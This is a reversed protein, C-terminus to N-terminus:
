RVTGRRDKQGDGRCIGPVRGTAGLSPLVARYPQLHPLGTKGRCRDFSRADTVSGAGNGCDVVVSLGPDISVADLIAKKHPALADFSCEKGQHRWDAWHPEKLFEEVEKQQAQTFSSGDPNFLKIGNYEEPNHSATIMCGAKATRASYAVSPTPAIGTFHANGGAGLIGALIARALVPSTTRTDTGM